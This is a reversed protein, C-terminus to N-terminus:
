SSVREPTATLATARPPTFSACGALILVAIAIRWPTLFLSLTPGPDLRRRVRMLEDLGRAPDAGAGEFRGCADGEDVPADCRRPRVELISRILRQIRLWPHWLARDGTDTRATM